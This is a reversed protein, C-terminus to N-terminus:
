LTIVLVKDLMCSIDVNATLMVRANVKVHLIQALGGTQSQNRLLAKNIVDKPVKKPVDDIAHVFHSINENARLMNANHEQCPM